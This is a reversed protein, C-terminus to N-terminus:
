PGNIETIIRKDMYIRLGYEAGMRPMNWIWRISWYRGAQYKGEDYLLQMSNIHQASLDINEKRVHEEAIALAQSISLEPFSSGIQPLSENVLSQASGQVAFLLLLFIVSRKMYVKPGELFTVVVAHVLLVLEFCM